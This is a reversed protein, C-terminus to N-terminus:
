KLLPMVHAIDPVIRLDAADDKMSVKKVHGRKLQAVRGGQANVLAGDYEDYFAEHVKVLHNELYALEDDDDNLLNHRHHPHEPTRIAM